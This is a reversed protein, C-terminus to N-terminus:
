NNAYGFISNEIQIRTMHLRCCHLSTVDVTPVYGTCYLIHMLLALLLLLSQISQLGSLENMTGVFTVKDM